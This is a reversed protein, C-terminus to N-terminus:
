SVDKIQKKLATYNQEVIRSLLLINQEVIRILRPFQQEARSDKDFSNGIKWKKFLKNYM